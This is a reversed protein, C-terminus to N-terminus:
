VVRYAWYDGTSDMTYPADAVHALVEIRDAGILADSVEVFDTDRQYARRTSVVVLGGPRAFGIIAELAQPPVHGVTFVGGVTVVDYVGALHSPAPQALDIGGELRRYIDREGALAVM